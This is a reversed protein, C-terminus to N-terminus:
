DRGAKQLSEVAREKPLASVYDQTKKMAARLDEESVINYRDFTSRTRHGSIKMAVTPDVGARIMNRIASRRLDHLLIGPLGARRCATARAKRFEGVPADARHLILSAPGGEKTEGPLARM